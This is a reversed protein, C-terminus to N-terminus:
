RDVQESIKEAIVVPLNTDFELEAKQLWAYREPHVLYNKVIYSMFRISKSQDNSELSDLVPVLSSYNYEPYHYKLKMINIIASEIMGLNNSELAVKYNKIAHEVKQQESDEVQTDHKTNQAFSPIVILATFLLAFTLNLRSM